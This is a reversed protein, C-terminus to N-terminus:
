RGVRAIREGVTDLNFGDATSSGFFKGEKGVIVGVQANAVGAIPTGAATFACDSQVEYSGTATTEQTKGGLSIFRHKATYGGKGDFTIASTGNIPTYPDQTGVFGTFHVGYTGLLTANSCGETETVAVARQSLNTLIILASLAFYSINGFSKNENEDYFERKCILRRHQLFKTFFPYKIIACIKPM